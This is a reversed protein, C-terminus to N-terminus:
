RVKQGPESGGKLGEGEEGTGEDTGKLKRKHGARAPTELSFSFSSLMCVSVGM